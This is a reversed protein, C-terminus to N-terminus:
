IVKAASLLMGYAWWMRLRSKLFTRSHCNKFIKFNLFYFVLFFYIFFLYIFLYFMFFLYIFIFFLYFLYIFSSNWKDGELCSRRKRRHGEGWLWGGWGLKVWGGVKYHHKHFISCNQRATTRLIRLLHRRYKLLTQPPWSICYWKSQKNSNQILLVRFRNGSNTMIM